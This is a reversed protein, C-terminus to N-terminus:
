KPAGHYLQMLIIPYPIASLKRLLATREQSSEERVEGEVLVDRGEKKRSEEKVKWEEEEKEKLERVREVM